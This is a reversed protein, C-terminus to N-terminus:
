SIKQTTIKKNENKKKKKNKIKEQISMLKEHHDFTNNFYSNYIINIEQGTLTREFEIEYSEVAKSFSVFSWEDRIEEKSVVEVRVSEKDCNKLFESILYDKIEEETMYEFSCESLDVEYTEDLTM